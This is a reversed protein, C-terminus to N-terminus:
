KVIKMTSEQPPEEAKPEETGASLEAEATATALNDKQTLKEELMAFGEACGSIFATPYSPFNAIVTFTNDVYPIVMELSEIDTLGYYYGKGKSKEITLLIDNLLLFNEIVGKQLHFPLDHFKPGIMKDVPNGGISGDPKFNPNFLQNWNISKKYNDIFDCFIKLAKPSDKGIQNFFNEKSLHLTTKNSM